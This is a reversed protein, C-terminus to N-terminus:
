SAVGETATPAVKHWGILKGQEDYSSKVVEGSSLVQGEDYGSLSKVSVPAATQGTDTQTPEV